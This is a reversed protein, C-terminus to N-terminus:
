QVSFILTFLVRGIARGRYSATASVSATDSTQATKAALLFRATRSTRGSGDTTDRDSEVGGNMLLLTPGNGNGPPAREIV